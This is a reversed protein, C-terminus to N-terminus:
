PRRDAVPSGHHAVMRWRGDDGRSYVNIASVTGAAPGDLLNEDCVVWAVGGRVVVQVGSLIFQLHQPGGLIARWSAQM